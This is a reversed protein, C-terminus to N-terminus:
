FRVGAGSRITLGGAQMTGFTGLDLNALLTYGVEVHLSMQIANRPPARLEFGGVMGAGPAFGIESVQGPNDRITPDDDFKVNVLWGVGEVAAYPYLTDVIAADVRLGATLGHGFFASQLNGRNAYYDYDTTSEYGGVTVTAGRRVNHYGLRVELRSAPRVVARAGWGFMGNTDAFLQYNEDGNRVSGIEAMLGLRPQATDQALASAMWLAIM